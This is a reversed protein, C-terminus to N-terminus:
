SIKLFHGSRLRNGPLILMLCGKKESLLLNLVKFRQEPSNGKQCIVKDYYTRNNLETLM